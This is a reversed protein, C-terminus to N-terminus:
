NRELRRLLDNGKFCGVLTQEKPGLLAGGVEEFFAERPKGDFATMFGVFGDYTSAAGLVVAGLAPAVLEQQDGVAGIAATAMGLATQPIGRGVDAVAFAAGLYDVGKAKQYGQM